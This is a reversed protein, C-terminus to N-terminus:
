VAGKKVCAYGAKAQQFQRERIKELIATPDIGTHALLTKEVAALGSEVFVKDTLVRIPIHAQWVGDKKSLRIGLVRFIAKSLDYLSWFNDCPNDYIFIRGDFIRSAPGPIIYRGWRSMEIHRPLFGKLLNESTPIPEPSNNADIGIAEAVRTWSREYTSPPLTNREPELVTVFVSGKSRIIAANTVKTM